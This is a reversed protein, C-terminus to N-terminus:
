GVVDDDSRIERAPQLRRLDNVRCSLTRGSSQGLARVGNRQRRAVLQMKREYGLGKTAIADVEHADVLRVRGVRARQHRQAEDRASLLVQTPM